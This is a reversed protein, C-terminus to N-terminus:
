VFKRILIIVLEKIGKDIGKGAGKGICKWICKCHNLIDQSIKRFTDEGNVM